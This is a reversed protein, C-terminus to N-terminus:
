DRILSTYNIIFMQKIIGIYCFANPLSFQSHAHSVGFVFICM